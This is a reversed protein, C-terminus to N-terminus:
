DQLLESNWYASDLTSLFPMWEKHHRLSFTEFNFATWEPRRPRKILHMGAEEPTRGGKRRNCTHCSCVVNEWSSVGGRSRPIVHDLNLEIRAFRKGCYQCTNGDRAYINFRSFRVHRKPVREYALLLLVRPVRIFGGVVGLREHHLEVSLDRWSDFDFTRYHEDVAHAVGQYLLAFARKVSTIHVPLYSRNLVLVKSNLVSLGGVGPITNAVAGMKLVAKDFAKGLDLAL